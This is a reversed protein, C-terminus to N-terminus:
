GGKRGLKAEEARLIENVDVGALELTHRFGDFAADTTKALGVGGDLEGLVRRGDATDLFRSLSTALRQWTADPFGRRVVCVDSPIPDTLAIVRLRDLVMERDADGALRQLLRGRADGVVEGRQRQQEGAPSFYVAGAAVRRAWVDEVVKTHGGVFYEAAPTVDHSRLLGRPFIFGSTSAEDTYALTRGSLDALRRIGSDVRTLICGRYSAIERELPQPLAALVTTRELTGPREAELEKRGDGVFDRPGTSTSASVAAAPPDPGSFLARVADRDSAVGVEHWGAAPRLLEGLARRLPEDLTMPVAVRRGALDALRGVTRDGSRTVVILSQEFTRMVQLRAEADANGHAIVYAFAPMWAVDAGGTALADIVDGYGAPVEARLRLGADHSVFRALEDAAKQMTAPTQSPVFYMRVTTNGSGPRGHGCSFPLALAAAVAAAALVGRLRHGGM